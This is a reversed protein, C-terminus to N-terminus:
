AVEFGELEIKVRGYAPTNVTKGVVGSEVSIGKVFDSLQSDELLEQRSMVVRESTTLTNFTIVFNAEEHMYKKLQNRIQTAHSGDLGTFIDSYTKNGKLALYVRVWTRDETGCPNVTEWLVSEIKKENKYVLEMVSGFEKFDHNEFPKIVSDVNDISLTEKAFTVWKQKSFKEKMFVECMFVNTLIVLRVM